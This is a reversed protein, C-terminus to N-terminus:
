TTNKLKFRQLYFYLIPIIFISVCLSIVIGGVLSTALPLQLTTGFSNGFFVPILGFVTTLTTMLQAKLRRKSADLIAEQLDMTAMNRNMTDIKLISDNDVLGILVIIGILSMINLSQGTIYLAALSGVVSLAISFFVLGPQTFSEFQVVLIFMLLLIALLGVWVIEELTKRNAFYTGSFEYKIEPVEALRSKWASAVLEDQDFSAKLTFPVFEGEESTYVASLDKVERIQLLESLKVKVGRSSNIWTANLINYLEPSKSDIYISALAQEQQAIFGLYKNKLLDSLLQGVQRSTLGYKATREQNIQLVTLVGVAPQTFLFKEKGLLLAVKEQLIVQQQVSLGETSLRLELTPADPNFLLEFINKAPRIIPKALPHKSEFYASLKEKFRSGDQQNKLQVYIKSCHKPQDAIEGLLFQQKGVFAGVHSFDDAFHQILALTHQKNTEALLNQGWDIQIEYEDRVFGPIGEKRIYYGLVFLFIPLFSCLGMLIHRYRFSLLILNEIRKELWCYLKSENPKYSRGKYFLFYLVPSLTTACLLSIGLAISISVAQDYFLAGAIGSLLLLPLFVVINTLISVFLPFFVEGVGKVCAQQISVQNSRFQNINEIVIISSDVVMGIGLVLGSLSIVNLSLGLLHFCGFTILLTVPINIGIILPTQYDGSFIFFILFALIGGLVLSSILNNISTELLYSQDQSVEFALDPFEDKLTNILKSLEEKLQLMQANPHKVIALAIAQKNDFFYYGDPQKPTYQIDAIDKIQIFKTTHPIKFSIRGIDETSGIPQAIKLNYQYQSAQIQVTGYEVNQGEFLSALDDISLNLISM